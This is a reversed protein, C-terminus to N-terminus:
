YIERIKILGMQYQENKEKLFNKAVTRIHGETYPPTLIEETLKAIQNIATQKSRDKGNIYIFIAPHDDPVSVEIFQRIIESDSM